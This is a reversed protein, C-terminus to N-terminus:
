AGTQIILVDHRSGQSCAQSESQCTPKRPLRDNEKQQGVDALRHYHKSKCGFLIEVLSRISNRKLVDIVVQPWGLDSCSINRVSKIEFAPPQHSKEWGTRRKTPPRKLREWESIGRTFNLLVHHCVRWEHETVEDLMQVLPIERIRSRSRWDYYPEPTASSDISNSDGIDM